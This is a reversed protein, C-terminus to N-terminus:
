SSDPCAGSTREEFGREEAKEDGRREQGSVRILVEGFNRLYTLHFLISATPRHQVERVERFSTLFALTVVNVIGSLLFLLLINSDSQLDNMGLGEVRPVVSVIWGGCLAGVVISFNNIISQYAACRARKAPTVADFLFTSVSLQYGAGLAGRIGSVFCLWWLDASVLWLFPTVAFGVTSIMLVRRSGVEQLISGWRRMVLLQFFFGSGIALSYDTYDLRLDRLFYVTIFPASIHIALNTVAVFLVFKLFNSEYSRELFQWFSFSDVDPSEYTPNPHRSLMISSVLRSLAALSFTVVFGFLLMHKDDAVRLLYSVVLFGFLMCSGTYVNRRSLADIRNQPELLDGILSNWIPGAMMGTLYFVITAGLLTLGRMAPSMEGFGIAIIPLWTFSQALTLLCVLKPRNRFRAMLKLALPQLIAGFLLPLTSLLAVLPKSAGLYVGYPGLFSEGFASQLGFPIAEREILRQTRKRDIPGDCRPHSPPHDSSSM